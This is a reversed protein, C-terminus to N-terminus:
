EKEEKERERERKDKEKNEKKKRKKKKKKKKKMMGKFGKVAKTLAVATNVAKKFRNRLSAAHMTSMAESISAVINNTAASLALKAEEIDSSNAKSTALIKLQIVRDKITRRLKKLSEKYVPDDCKAIFDDLEKLFKEADESAQKAWVVYDKTSQPTSRLFKGKLFEILEAGYGEAKATSNGGGSSLTDDKIQSAASMAKLADALGSEVLQAESYCLGVM